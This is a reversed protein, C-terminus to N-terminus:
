VIFRNKKPASVALSVARKAGAALALEMVRAVAAAHGAVVIQEPTNINAPAVVEGQAADRAM